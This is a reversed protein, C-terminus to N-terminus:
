KNFSLIQDLNKVEKMKEEKEQELIEKMKNRSSAQNEQEVDSILSEAMNMVKEDYNKQLKQLSKQETELILIWADIRDPNSIFFNNLAEKEHPSFSISESLLKEFIVNKEMVSFIIFYFLVYM